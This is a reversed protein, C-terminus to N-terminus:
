GDGTVQVEVEAQQGHPLRVTVRYTGVSKIPESLDVQKRDVAFGMQRLAEAIQQATVAGFLRGSSGAKAPIRVTRGRLARAAEAARERERALKRDRAAREEELARLQGETAERALGRPLLYNRAYGERVEVVSGAKGLSPVYKVLIVKMPFAGGAKRLDLWFDVLGLAVLAFTGLDGLLFVAMAALVRGPRPVDRSQLYHLLTLLGFFAFVLVSALFGNAALVRGVEPAPGQLAVGLLVPAVLLFAGAPPLRWTLIPAFGPLETGLRRMVHRALTYSGYAWAVVGLVV